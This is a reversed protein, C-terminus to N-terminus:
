AKTIQGKEIYKLPTGNGISCSGTTPIVDQLYDRIQSTTSIVSRSAGSDFYMWLEQKHNDKIAALKNAIVKKIKDNTLFHLHAKPNFKTKILSLSMDDSTDMLVMATDNKANDAAHNKKKVRISSLLKETRSRLRVITDRLKNIFTVIEPSASSYDIEDGDDTDTNEFQEHDSDIEYDEYNESDSDFENKCYQDIIRETEANQEYSIDDQMQHWELLKEQMFINARKWWEDDEIESSTREDENGDHLQKAQTENATGDHQQKAQMEHALGDHMENENGDHQQKAQM